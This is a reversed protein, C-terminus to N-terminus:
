GTIKKSKLETACKIPLGKVKTNRCKKTAMRVPIISSNTWLLVEMQLKPDLKAIEKDAARHFAIKYNM